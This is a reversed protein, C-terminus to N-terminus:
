VAEQLIRITEELLAQKGYTVGKYDCHMANITQGVRAAILYADKTVGAEEMLKKQKELPNM